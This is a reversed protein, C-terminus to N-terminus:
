IHILSLSTVVGSAQILSIFQQPFHFTDTKLDWAWLISNVAGLLISDKSFAVTNDNPTGGALPIQAGNVTFVRKMGLEDILIPSDSMTKLYRTSEYKGKGLKLEAKKKLDNLFSQKSFADQSELSNVRFDYNADVSRLDFSKVKEISFNLPQASLNISYFVSIFLSFLKVKKRFLMILYSTLSKNTAM